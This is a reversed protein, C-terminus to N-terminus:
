ELIEVLETTQDGAQYKVFRRTNKEYWFYMDPIVAGLLGGVKNVMKVCEFEGAPVTITETGLGKCAMGLAGLHRAAVADFKYQKGFDFGAMLFPFIDADIPERKKSLKEEVTKGKDANFLTVIGSEYDYESSLNINGDPDLWRAELPMCKQTWKFEGRRLLEGAPSEVITTGSYNGDPLREISIFRYTISDDETHLIKLTGYNEVDVYSYDFRDHAFAAVSVFILAALLLRIAPSYHM